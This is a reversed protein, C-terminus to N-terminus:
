GVILKSKSSHISLISELLFKREYCFTERITFNHLNIKFLYLRTQITLFSVGLQSLFDFVFKSFIGGYIFIVKFIKINDQFAEFSHM